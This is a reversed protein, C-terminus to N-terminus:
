FRIIVEMGCEGGVASIIFSGAEDEVTTREFGFRAFAKAEGTEGLLLSTTHALLYRINRREEVPDNEWEIDFTEEGALQPLDALDLRSKFPFAGEYPRRRRLGTRIELVKSEEPLDLLFSTDTTIFNGSSIQLEIFQGISISHSESSGSMTDSLPFTSSLGFSHTIEESRYWSFTSYRGLAGFLNLATARYTGDFTLSDTRSDFSRSLSRSLGADFSAPLILNILRSGPTVAIGARAASHYDASDLVKSDALFSSRTEDNYLEAFPVSNWFYLQEGARSFSEGVDEPFGGEEGYPAATTLSRRYSFTLTPNGIRQPALLSTGSLEVSHSESLSFEEEASETGSGIGASLKLTSNTFKKSLAFRHQTSRSLPGATREPLFYAFSSGYRDALSEESLLNEENTVGYAAGLSLKGAEFIELEGDARWDRNLSLGDWSLAASLLLSGIGPERIETSSAHDVEVTSYTHNERYADALTLISAFLPLTFDYGGSPYFDSRDLFGHYSLSLDGAFLGFGLENTFSLEGAAPELFGSAFNESQLQVQNEYILNHVVPRENNGILVGPRYYSLQSRGAGGLELLTDHFFFEDIQITGAPNLTTDADIDIRNVGGAERKKRLGTYDGAGSPIYTGDMTVKTSGSSDLEWTYTRWDSHAPPNFSVSLGEGAPNRISLTLSDPQTGTKMFFSLKRYDGLDVPKGYARSQWSNVAPGWSFTAVRARGGGGENFLGAEDNGMLDEYGSDGEYLYSEYVDLDSGSGSFSSGLFSLEAVLLRGSASAGTTEILLIQVATVASLKTREEASLSLTIENWSQSLEASINKAVAFDQLPYSDLVNNGNLDESNIMSRHPAWPIRPAVPMIGHPSHTFPFGDSYKSSEEDLKDDADLDEPLSGFILYADVTGSPVAGSRGIHKTKLTIAKMRSLDLPEEANILPVLGGVWQDDGLEYDLVMADGETQSGTSAPYPGVREGYDYVQEAPPSWDYDQLIYEGAFSRSYLDKYFLKGRSGHLATPGATPQTASYDGPAGPYLTELTLAVPLGGGDMGLFRRLGTTNPSEVSIGGDLALSFNEQEWSSGGSVLISGTAEEQEETYSAETINWRLGLNLNGAFNENFRLANASAAILEGESFGGGSTRYAIDIRESHAVPVFFSIEGTQPNLSYRYEPVGNRLIEVSGELVNEGLSFSSVPSKKEYLLEKSLPEPASPRNPGYLIQNDSLYPILPYRSEHSRISEGGTIRAFGDEFSIYPLNYGDTGGREVLRLPPRGAGSGGESSVGGIDYVSRLEFPSWQGPRYLILANNGGVSTINATLDIGLYNSLNGDPDDNDTDFDIKNAALDITGSGTGALADVGLGPEGAYLAGKRYQVLVRSKAPEALFVLGEQKSVTVEDDGLVRYTSGGGSVSGEPDELYVTITDIDADPLVFFRGNVREEPDVRQEEILKYGRYSVKQKEAPDFRVAMHHESRNSELLGYAGFSEKSAAPLSFFGFNGYGIDTNGVRVQQVLEGERGNYGFLFTELKEEETIKTEFFYRDLIWLSMTLEPIQHFAFGDTMGPFTSRRLIGSRNDWNWGFGGSLSMSWSGELYLDVDADGIETALLATPAEEEPLLVEQTQAGPSLLGFALCCLFFPLFVTRKAITKYLRLVKYNDQLPRKM